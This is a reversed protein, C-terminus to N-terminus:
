KGRMFMKDLEAMSIQFWTPRGHNCQDARETNEMDRLLANMEAVTLQRNARVASHCALTGLLANRYETLTHSGGSQRLEGLVDRALRGADAHQLLQPVARVALSTPSLATISFGIEELIAAHELVAAVDIADAQITVPILLPQSALLRKDWATKFKEYMVREHAAHMDVLILGAQNQALIYVGHIQGIAYGLPHDTGTAASGGDIRAPAPTERTVIEYYNAPQAIGHDVRHNLSTQYPQRYTDPLKGTPTSAAPEPWPAHVGPNEGGRASLAKNVAHYLFQHVARGDHFRVETKAPHVNVDVATPALTIFLCYAPHRDHHLVDHYAQRLAHSLLKDRVFRGNVFIYQADRSARSYAPLTSLGAVSLVPSTEAIEVAAQSFEDGLLATIRESLSQVPLQQQSRDNHFLSFAVDPRALAIRRFAEDCHAYETAASKLFKRRAPTNFYLDRVEITTGTQLTSPQLAGIESGEARIEVAHAAAATRSILRVRAIAAISALAEGRFGLSAVCELDELSGIKSTAHRALALQLQTQEIGTGNDAVRILQMGGQELHVRIETAGADLCNELLEKLAAAPREVVEGAAIQSILLDPLLRISPM